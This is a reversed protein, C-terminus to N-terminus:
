KFSIWCKVVDYKKAELIHTGFGYGYDIMVGWVPIAETYVSFLTTKLFYGCLCLKTFNIMLFQILFKLNNDIGNRKM